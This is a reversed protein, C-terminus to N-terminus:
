LEDDDFDDNNSSSYKDIMEKLKLIKNFASDSTKTYKDIAPHVYVNERGKVYEKTITAGDEKFSKELADLMEIQVELLHYSTLFSSDKDMGYDKAEELIGKALEKIDKEKGKNEKM